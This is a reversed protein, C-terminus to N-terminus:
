QHDARQHAAILRYLCLWVLEKIIAEGSVGDSRMKEIDESALTQSEGDDVLNRNDKGSGVALGLDPSLGGTM